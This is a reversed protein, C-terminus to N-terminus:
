QPNFRARGCLKNETPSFPLYRGSLRFTVSEPIREHNGDAILFSLCSQKVRGKIM